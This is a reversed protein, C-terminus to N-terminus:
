MYVLNFANLDITNSMYWRVHDPLPTLPIHHVAGQITIVPVIYTTGVGFLPKRLYSGNHLPQEQPNHRVKVIVTAAPQRMPGTGFTEVSAFLVEVSSEADEVIFLCELCTHIHGATADAFFMETRTPHSHWLPHAGGSGDSDGRQCIVGRGAGIGRMATCIARHDCNWQKKESQRYGITFSCQTTTALPSWIDSHSWQTCSGFTFWDAHWVCVELQQSRQVARPSVQHRIRLATTGLTGYACPMEDILNTKTVTVLNAVEYYPM